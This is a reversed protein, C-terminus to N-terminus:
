DDKEGTGNNQENELFERLPNEVDSIEELREETHKIIKPSLVDNLDSKNM